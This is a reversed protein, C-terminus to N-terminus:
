QSSLNGMVSKITNFFDQIKKTENAYSLGDNRHIKRGNQQRVELNKSVLDRLQTAILLQSTKSDGAEKKIAETLGEKTLLVEPSGLSSLDTFLKKASSAAAEVEQERRGKIKDQTDIIGKLQSLAKANRAAQSSAVTSYQENSIPQPIEYADEEQGFSLEGSNQLGISSRESADVSSQVSSAAASDDNEVAKEVAKEDAKEDAVFAGANSRNSVSSFRGSLGKSDAAAIV